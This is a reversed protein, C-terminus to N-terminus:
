CGREATSLWGDVAGVMISPWCALGPRGPLGRMGLSGPFMSPALGWSGAGPANPFARRLAMIHNIHTGPFSGQLGCIPLINYFNHVQTSSLLLMYSSLQPLSCITTKIIKLTKFESTDVSKITNLAINSKNTYWQIRFVHIFQPGVLIYFLVVNSYVNILTKTNM